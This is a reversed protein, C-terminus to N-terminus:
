RRGKACEASCFTQGEPCARRKCEPCLSAIGSHIAIWMHSDCCFGGLRAAVADTISAQCDPLRCRSTSNQPGQPRYRRSGTEQIGAMSSGRLQFIPQNLPDEDLESGDDTASIGYDDWDREGDLEDYVRTDNPLGPVPTTVSGRVGPPSLVPPYPRTTSGYYDPTPVAPQPRVSAPVLQSAPPYTSPHQPYPYYSENPPPLSSPTIRASPDSFTQPPLKSERRAPGGSLYTSAVSSVPNAALALGASSLPQHDPPTRYSPTM